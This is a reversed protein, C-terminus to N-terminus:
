NTKSFRDVKNKLIEEVIELKGPRWSLTDLDPVTGSLGPHTAHIATPKLFLNIQLSSEMDVLTCLEIVFIKM